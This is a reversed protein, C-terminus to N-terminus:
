MAFNVSELSPKAPIDNCAKKMQRTPLVQLLNECYIISGDPEDSTSRIM